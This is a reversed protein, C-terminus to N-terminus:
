KTIKGIAREANGPLTTGSNPAPSVSAASKLAPLAAFAPPGIEGLARAAYSGIYDDENQLLWLLRTVAVDTGKTVKGLAQIAATQTVRDSSHTSALLLSSTGIAAPGIEGITWIAYSRRFADRGVAISELEKLAERDGSQLFDAKLQLMRDCDAERKSNTDFCGLCALMLMTALATVRRSQLPLMLKVM